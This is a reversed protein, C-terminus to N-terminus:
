RYFLLIERRYSTDFAPEQTAEHSPAESLADMDLDVVYGGLDTDYTLMDWPLPYHREGVGMMGGSALVAYRVQGSFKDVMFNRITGLREGDMDYVATDEVKSSSILRDSEDIELNGYADTPRDSRRRYAAYAAGAVALAALGAIAGLLNRNGMDQWQIRDQRQRPDHRHRAAVHHEEEYDTAFGHSVVVEKDRGNADLDQEQQAM